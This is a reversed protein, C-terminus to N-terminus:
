CHKGTKGQLLNPRVVFSPTLVGKEEFNALQIDAPKGDELLFVSDHHSEAPGIDLVGFRLGPGFDLTEGEAVVTDPFPAFFAAALRAFLRRPQEHSIYAAGDVTAGPAAIRAAADAFRQNVTTYSEWWERHFSPKAVVDHYLPWLTDNSFGEYFEEVEDASLQVPVLQLGDEVFPELHDDAQGTWGIWAGDAKRMVPELASVLGSATLRTIHQSLTSGCVEIGTHLEGVTMGAEGADLLKRYIQLRIPHGLSKFISSAKLSDM